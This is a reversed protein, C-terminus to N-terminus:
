GFTKLVLPPYLKSLREIMAMVSKYESVMQGLPEAAIAPAQDNIHLEANELAVQIFFSDLEAEDKLYSEQKGKSVKYFPPQAIFVHGREFLERMHRFFFTLLLTRIHSGDVDADTM